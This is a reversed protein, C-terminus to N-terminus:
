TVTSGLVFCLSLLPPTVQYRQLLENMDGNHKDYEAVLPTMISVFLVLFLCVCNGGWLIIIDYLFFFVTLTWSFM